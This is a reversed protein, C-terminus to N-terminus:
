ATDECEEQGKRGSAREREEEKGDKNLSDTLSETTIWGRTMNKWPEEGATNLEVTFLPGKTQTTM